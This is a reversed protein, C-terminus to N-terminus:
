KWAIAGDTGRPFGNDAEELLPGKGSEDVLKSVKVASLWEGKVKKVLLTQQFSGNRATIQAALAVESRGNLKYPGQLAVVGPSLNGLNLITSSRMLEDYSFSKLQAPEWIRIQVDYLPFKGKHIVVIVPDGGPKVSTTRVYCFSDGGTIQSQIEANLRAIERDKEASQVSSWLVGAAGLIAGVFVLITPGNDALWKM